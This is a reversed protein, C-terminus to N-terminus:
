EIIREDDEKIQEDHQTTIEEIKKTSTNPVDIGHRKKGKVKVNQHEFIKEMNLIEKNAKDIEKKYEQEWQKQENNLENEDDYSEASILDKFFGKLDITKERLKEKM